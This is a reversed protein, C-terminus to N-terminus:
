ESHGPVINLQRGMSLSSKAEYKTTEGEIFIIQPALNPQRMWPLFLMSGINSQELVFLYNDHM